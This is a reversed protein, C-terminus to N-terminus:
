APPSAQAAAESAPEPHPTPTQAQAGFNRFAPQTLAVLLTLALVAGGAVFFAGPGFRRVVFGAAAVSIPFVGFSATLLLGSLRGILARPAWLQFVTLMIVNGYANLLGFAGIVTVALPFNMVAALAAMVAAEVCFVVAGVIFPRHASPLRAAALSGILAGIGFSAILTGYGAAGAQLTQRAFVPLAVESAGGSGLNAALSVAIIMFFIPERRCFAWLRVPSPEREAPVAGAPAVASGREAVRDPQGTLGAHGATEPQGGVAAAAPEGARGAPGLGDAGDAPVPEALPARVRSLRWLTLASAGFSVADLGFGAGSGVTAVVLGGLAPGVFAALQTGSSLLANGSQLQEEAVVSPMAAFSAPLFLGEGAGLGAAIPILVAASATTTAAVAAFGAVLVMRALDAGLMVRAPGLKDSLHGGVILFGTRPIGYAALVVGLLVSSGHHSLVYWPLAVAYVGDGLNSVLQGSVLWRFGPSRLALWAGASARTGRSRGARRIIRRM